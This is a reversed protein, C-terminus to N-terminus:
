GFRRRDIAPKNEAGRNETHSPAETSKTGPRRQGVESRKRNFRQNEDGGDRDTHEDSLLKKLGITLARFGRVKETAFYSLEALQWGSLVTDRECIM